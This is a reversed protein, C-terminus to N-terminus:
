VSLSLKSVLVDQRAKLCEAVCIFPALRCRKDVRGLPSCRLRNFYQHGLKGFGTKVFKACIVASAAVAAYAESVRTQPWIVVVIYIRKFHKDAKNKRGIARKM